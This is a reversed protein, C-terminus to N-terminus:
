PSIQLICHYGGASQIGGGSTRASTLNSTLDRLLPNYHTVALKVVKHVLPRWLVVCVEIFLSINETEVYINGEM